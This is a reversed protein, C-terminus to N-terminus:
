YELTPTPTITPPRPPTALNRYTYRTIVWTDDKPALTYIFELIEETTKASGGYSWKERTSVIVEDFRSEDGIEPPLVYEFTVDPPRAFRDNLRIAFREIVDLAKGQWIKGLNEVNANTAQAITDRLLENAEDVAALAARRDAPTLTGTKAPTAAGTVEATAVPTTTVDPEPTATAPRTATSETLQPTPTNTPLVRTATPSPLPTASPKPPVPTSTPEPAATPTEAPAAPSVAAATTPTPAPALGVNLPAVPTLAQITFWVLGSWVLLWIAVGLLFVGTRGLVNYGSADLTVPGLWQRGKIAALVLAPGLVVIIVPLFLILLIFRLLDRM